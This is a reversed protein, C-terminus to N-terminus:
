HWQELWGRSHWSNGTRRYTPHTRWWRPMSGCFGKAHSWQGPDYSQPSAVGLCAKATELQAIALSSSAIFGLVASCLAVAVIQMRM